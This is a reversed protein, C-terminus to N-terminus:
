PGWLPVPLILPESQVILAGVNLAGVTLAGVNLAGVNWLLNINPNLNYQKRKEFEM